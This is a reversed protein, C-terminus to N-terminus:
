ACCFGFGEILAALGSDSALWDPAILPKDRPRERRKTFDKRALIEPQRPADPLAVPLRALLLRGCVRRPPAQSFHLRAERAISPAQALRQNWPRSPNVGIETGHNQQRGVSHFGYSALAKTKFLCRGNIRSCVKSLDHGKQFNPALNFAYDARRQSVGHEKREVKVEQEYPNKQTEHNVDWGLAILFKDIFDHRAEAEQYQPSLFFKENAKFDAALEKVRAFADDFNASM